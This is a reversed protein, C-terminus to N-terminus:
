YHMWPCTGEDREAANEDEIFYSLIVTGVQGVEHMPHLYHKLYEPMYWKACIPATTIIGSTAQTIQHCM